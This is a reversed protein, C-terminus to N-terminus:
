VDDDSGVVSSCMMMIMMMSHIKYLLFLFSIKSFLLLCVTILKCGGDIEISKYM